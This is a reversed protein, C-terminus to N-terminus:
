AGTRNQDGLASGPAFLVAVANNTLVTAGDAGLVTISGRTDSNVRQTPLPVDAVPQFSASVAYWLPEGNADRAQPIGLTKWPLRGLLRTCPPRQAYGDGADPCPLEGPRGPTAADGPRRTLGSGEVAYAILAAKAAALAERTVRENEAAVSDSRSYAFLATASGVTVILLLAVVGAYGREGATTRPSRCM